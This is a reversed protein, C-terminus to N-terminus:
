WLIYTYSLDAEYLPEYHKYGAVKMFAEVDPLHDKPKYFEAIYLICKESNREKLYDGIMKEDMKDTFLFDEFAELQILDSTLTSQPGYHENSYYVCPYIRNDEILKDVQKNEPYMYFPPIVHLLIVMCIVGVLAYAGIFRPIGHLKLYVCVLYLVPLIIIPLVNYVYRLSEYKAISTVVIFDIVSPIFLLLVTKLARDRKVAASKERFDDDRRVYRVILITAAIGLLVAIPLSKIASKTVTYLAEVYHGPNIANDKVMQATGHNNFNQTFDPFALIFGAVGGLASIAYFLATKYRKGAVLAIVVAASLFFAYFVGFLNTLLGGAISLLIIPCYYAKEKLVFGAVAYSLLVAFFTLLVYMRIFVLSAIGARSLGYLLVAATGVYTNIKDDDKAIGPLTHESIMKVLRYLIMLTLVYIFLNLSLGIWKSHGGKVVSSVTHILDYYLPPHDSHTQNYYVSGYKFADDDGVTLYDHIESSKVVTNYIEKGEGRVNTIFPAYYSNALGYTYIEDLFMGSKEYCMLWGVILVLLISM